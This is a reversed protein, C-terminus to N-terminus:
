DLCRKFVKNVTIQMLRKVVDSSTIRNRPEKELMETIINCVNGIEERFVVAFERKVFNININMFLKSQNKM